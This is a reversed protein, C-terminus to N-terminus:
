GLLALVGELNKMGQALISEAAQALINLKSFEVMEKAMDLDRIRSEAATLNEASNDANAMAHEMRNTMAGFHSRDRSVKEIANDVSTIGYNAYEHNLVSLGNIGLSQSSINPLEILISQGTNAGAQIKLNIVGTTTVTTVTYGKGVVGMDNAPNSEQNKRWDYIILKSSDDPDAMFRTYHNMNPTGQELIAKVIDEGSSLGAVNINIVPDPSGTSPEYTDIFRISYREDCTCCTSYFGSDASLFQNINSSDVGSFDIVAYSYQGSVLGDPQLEELTLESPLSVIDPMSGYEQRVMNTTIDGGKLIKITNFETYDAIDDINSVLQDIEAQIAQRDMDVNTDNASQVSLERIGLLMSTIEGLAGDATQTLSIGDQINHSAQELGRIQGRMKESISLGAADDASRNIRYGSSLKEMSRSRKRNTIAINRNTNMTSLNHQIIM